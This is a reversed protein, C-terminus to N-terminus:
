DLGYMGGWFFYTGTLNMKINDESM